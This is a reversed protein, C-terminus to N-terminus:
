QGAAACWKICYYDFGVEEIEYGLKKLLEVNEKYYITLSADRASTRNLYYLISKKEEKQKKKRLKEANM